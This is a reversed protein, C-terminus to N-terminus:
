SIYVNLIYKAFSTYMYNFCSIYIIFTILHTSSNRPQYQSSQTHSLLIHSPISGKREGAQSDPVEMMKGLRLASSNGKATRYSGLLSQSPYNQIRFTHLAVQSPLCIGLLFLLFVLSHLCCTLIRYDNM